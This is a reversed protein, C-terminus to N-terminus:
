NKVIKETMIVDDNSYIKLIYTGASLPSTSFSFINRGQKANNDYFAKILKGDINYIAIEVPSNKELIFDQYIIDYAPNPFISAKLDPQNLTVSASLSCLYADIVTVSYTGECLNYAFATPQNLPDDWSYTYPPNANYVSVEVRGDCLRFISEDVSDTISIAMITSDVSQLEAIWTGNKKLSDGYYGTTWVKGPENYKRQSGTYDGWREYTGGHRDVYNDGEKIRLIGSYEGGNSYYIASFGSFVTPASHDFTILAEYDCDTLGTYSINPYGFDLLTDSLINGTVTIVSDLNNIFGHYIGSFGTATDITNSVFQIQGNELFAGLVRGDNTDFEHGNAQRAFPPVGYKTDTLGLKINLTTGPDDLTNTIEVLFISDSQITFNRNSLFYMNPSYPKSGGIVPHLNRINISDYLIDSWLETNIISDGNFGATKDVQWIITQVFGIQWPVGNMLQNVTLFLEDDTVAIAPYDSWTSDNFPNGNLAYCNWNATPDNTETFCVIVKSNQWTTEFLFVLIFKDENPDYVLKPDYKSTGISSLGLLGAFYALSTVQIMTDQEVDYINIKSNTASILIGDNSIAMNNDNPIGSPTNGEFNRRLVPLSAETGSFKYPKYGTKRPYKKGIKKKLEILDARETGPKPMEVNQLMSMWDHEIEKLDVTSFKSAKFKQKKYSIKQEQATCQTIIFLFSIILHLIRM